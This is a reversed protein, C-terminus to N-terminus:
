RDREREMTCGQNRSDPGAVVGIDCNVEFEGAGRETEADGAKCCTTVLLIWIDDGEVSAMGGGGVLTTGDNGNLLLGRFLVVLDLLLPLPSEEVPPLCDDEGDDDEELDFLRLEAPAAACCGGTWSMINSHSSLFCALRAAFRREAWRLRLRLFINM